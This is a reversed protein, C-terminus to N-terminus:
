LLSHALRDVHAPLMNRITRFEELRSIFDLEEPTQGAAQVALWITMAANFGSIIKM